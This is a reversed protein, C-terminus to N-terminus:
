GLFVRSRGSRGPAGKGAPLLIGNIRGVQAATTCSGPTDVPPAEEEEEVEEQGPGALGEEWSVRLSNHYVREARFGHRTVADLVYRVADEVAYPPTGLRFEPITCTCSSLGSCAARNVRALVTDLLDAYVRQQRERRRRVAERARSVTTISNTLMM